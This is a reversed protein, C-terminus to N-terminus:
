RKKAKNRPNSQKVNRRRPKVSRKTKRGYKKVAKFDTLIGFYAVAVADSADNGKTSIKKKFKKELFTCTEEKTAGGDQLLGYRISNAQASFIKLIGNRHCVLEVVGHMKALAVVANKFRHYIQEVCCHDPKYKNILENLTDYLTIHYSIKKVPQIEGYCILNQGDFIAWGTSKSSIDLGLVIM